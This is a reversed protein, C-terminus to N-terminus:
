RGLDLAIGTRRCYTDPKDDVGYAVDVILRDGVIVGTIWQYAQDGTELKKLPLRGGFSGDDKIPWDFNVGEGAMGSIRGDQVRGLFRADYTFKCGRAGLWGSFPRLPREAPTANRRAHAPDVQANPLPMMKRNEGMGEVPGSLVGQPQPGEALVALDPRLALLILCGICLLSPKNTAM